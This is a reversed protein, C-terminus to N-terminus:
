STLSYGAMHSTCVVCLIFNYLSSAMESSLYKVSFPTSPVQVPGIFHVQSETSSTSTGLLSFPRFVSEVLIALPLHLCFCVFANPGLPFHLYSGAGTSSLATSSTAKLAKSTPQWTGFGVAIRSHARWPDGRDRLERWDRVSQVSRAQCVPPQEGRAVSLHSSPLTKM